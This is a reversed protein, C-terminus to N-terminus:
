SIKFEAGDWQVPTADKQIIQGALDAITLKLEDDVTVRLLKTSFGRPEAVVSVSSTRAAPLVAWSADEPADAGKWMRVRLVDDRLATVQLSLEGSTMTMGAPLQKLQQARTNVTLLCAVSICAACAWNAVPKPMYIEGRNM